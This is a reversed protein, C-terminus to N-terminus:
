DDMGAGYLVASDRAVSGEAGLVSWGGALPTRRTQRDQRVTM